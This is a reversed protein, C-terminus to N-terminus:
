VNMQSLSLSICTLNKSIYYSKQKFAIAIAKSMENFEIRANFIAEISIEHLKKDKIVNETLSKSIMVFFMLANKLEINKNRKKTQKSVNSVWRKESIKGAVYKVALDENPNFSTDMNRCIEELHNALRFVTSWFKKLDPNNHKNLQQTVQWLTLEICCENNNNQLQINADPNAQIFDLYEPNHTPGSTIIKGTAWDWFKHCSSCWMQNCGYTKYTLASCSPCPRCSAKINKVTKIDEEKCEHGECKEMHCKSCAQLDCIGCKYKEDLVGQCHVSPCYWKIKHTKAHKKNGYYGNAHLQIRLDITPDFTGPVGTNLFEVEDQLQKIKKNLNIVESKIRGIQEQNKEKRVIYGAKRQVNPHALLQKEIDMQMNTSKVQLDKNQFNLPFHKMIFRRPITYGCKFPCTPKWRGDQGLNNDTLIWTKLCELCCKRSCKSCALAKRSHKTYKETCISCIKTDSM